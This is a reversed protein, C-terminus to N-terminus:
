NTPCPVVKDIVETGKRTRTTCVPAPAVVNNQRGTIDNTNVQVAGSTAVDEVGRLSLTLQGTNQAQTLEAVVQPSVEATVSRALIPDLSDSFSNQDIAILRVKELILKTITESGSIGTWYIDVRDDPKLFGSVGTISDVRITFARLGPALRSRIGADGGFDSVKGPIIPENQYIPRLITRQDTGEPGFVSELSTMAGFPLSDAPWKIMQVDDPTLKHAFDLTKTAVAIETLIIQPANNRRAVALQADYENFKQMVMFAASGALGLGILLVFAFVIRM